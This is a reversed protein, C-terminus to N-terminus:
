WCPSVSQCLAAAVSFKTTLPAKEGVLGFIQSEYGHLQIQLSRLGSKCRRRSIGLGSSSRWCICWNGWSCQALIQICHCSNGARWGCSWCQCYQSGAEGALFFWWLKLFLCCSPSEEFWFVRTYQIHTWYCFFFWQLTEFDKFSKRWPRYLSVVRIQITPFNTNLDQEETTSQDHVCSFAAMSDSCFTYDWSFCDSCQNKEKQGYVKTIM